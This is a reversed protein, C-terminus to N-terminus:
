VLNFHLFSHKLNQIFIAMCPTKIEMYIIIQSIDAIRWRVFTSDINDPSNQIAFLLKKINTSRTFFLIAYYNMSLTAQTSNFVPQYITMLKPFKRTSANPWLFHSFHTKRHKRYKPLSRRGTAYPPWKVEPTL